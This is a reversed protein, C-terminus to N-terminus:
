TTTPRTEPSGPSCTPSPGAWMSRRRSSSTITRATGTCPRPSTGCGPSPWCPGPRCGSPSTPGTTNSDARPTPPSPATKPSTPPAQGTHKSVSKTRHKTVPPKKSQPYNARFGKSKRWKVVKSKPEGLQEAIDLDCLGDAYLEACRMYDFENGCAQNPKRTLGLSNLKERMEAEPVANLDALISVHEAPNKANRYSTIIEDDTMQM